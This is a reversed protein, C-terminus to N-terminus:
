YILLTFTEYVDNAPAAAGTLAKGIVDTESGETTVAVIFTGATTGVSIDDGATIEEAAKAPFIGKVVTIMNNAAEAGYQCVGIFPNAQTAKAFKGDTDIEVGDYKEVAENAYFALRISPSEFASM